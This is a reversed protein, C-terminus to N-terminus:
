CCTGRRIWELPVAGYHLATAIIAGDFGAAQLMELDTVTAVGGGYFLRGTYSSRLKELFVPDLGDRTGVAGINLIICGEFEWSGARRLMVEPDNGSPIVRGNKIDISLFGEHYRSLDSGGTETGVINVINDGRLMDGPSRCGRDVYCTNVQRACEAIISDHSGTSEIRDLDAIYIFEPQISKVFGPPDATPSCGWDLPKYTERHGSKGHVVLNQRLDMALVLDM